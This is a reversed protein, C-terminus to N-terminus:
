DARVRQKGCRACRYLTVLRGQKVDFQRAKDVEWKHHGHRCLTKGKHQEKLSPKRFAIIDAM